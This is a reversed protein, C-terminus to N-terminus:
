RDNPDPAPHELSGEPAVREHGDTASKLRYQLGGGSDPMHRVVHFLAKESRLGIKHLVSAGIAFKHTAVTRFRRSASIVDGM